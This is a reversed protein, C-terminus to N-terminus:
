SIRKEGEVRLVGDKLEVHIKDFRKKVQGEGKQSVRGNPNPLLSSEESEGLAMQVDEAAFGEKM